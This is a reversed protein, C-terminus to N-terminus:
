WLNNPGIMCNEGVSIGGGGVFVTRESIIINGGLDINQPSTFVVGSMIMVNTGIKKLFLGVIFARSRWVSAAIFNFLRVLFVIASKKM